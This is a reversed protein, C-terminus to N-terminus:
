EEMVWRKDAPCKVIEKRSLYEDLVDMANTSVVKYPGNELAEEESVGFFDGMNKFHFGQLGIKFLQDDAITKGDFRVEKVRKESISCIVQLGHSMQYTEMREGDFFEERFLHSMMRKLQAGTVTVRFVEDQFPFMQVLEQYQVIPGLSKTRFSGSAMFMIDLGLNDCLIDSFLWISYFACLCKLTKLLSM